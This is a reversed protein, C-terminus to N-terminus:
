KKRERHKIVEHGVYEDISLGLADALLEITDLNGGSNRGIELASITVQHIGSLEALELQTLGKKRAVDANDRRTDNTMVGILQMDANAAINIWIMRSLMM